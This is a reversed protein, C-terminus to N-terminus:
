LAEDEKYSSYDINKYQWHIAHWSIHWLTNKHREAYQKPKWAQEKNQNLRVVGMLM